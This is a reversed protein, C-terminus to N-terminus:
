DLDELERALSARDAAEISEGPGGGSTARTEAVVASQRRMLRVGILGLVVLFAGIAVYPVIWAAKGLGGPPVPFAVAGYAKMYADLIDERTKGDLLAVELTKKHTHAWGCTCATITHRPCTGCLCVVEEGIAKAYDKQAKTLSIMRKPDVGLLHAVADPDERKSEEAGALVPFGLILVLALIRVLFPM